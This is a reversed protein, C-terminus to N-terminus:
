LAGIWGARPKPQRSNPASRRSIPHIQLGTIESSTSGNRRALQMLQYSQWSM